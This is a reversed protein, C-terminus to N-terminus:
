RNHRNRLDSMTESFPRTKGENVDSLGEQLMGYLEYRGILQEYAEISMVALDGKGNKTIFVPESYDHCFTSIENYSNRLDASSRITPM